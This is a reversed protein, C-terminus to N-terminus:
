RRLAYAANVAAIAIWAIIAVIVRGVGTSGDGGGNLAVATVGIGLAISGLPLRLDFHHPRDPLRPRREALRQDIKAVLNDVIEDEYAAGLERRAHVASEVDAREVM